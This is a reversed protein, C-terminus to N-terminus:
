HAAPGRRRCWSILLLEKARLDKLIERRGTFMLQRTAYVIAVISLDILALHRKRCGILESHPGIDNQREETRCLDPVADRILRALALLNGFEQITMRSRAPAMDLSLM